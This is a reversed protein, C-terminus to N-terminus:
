ETFLNTSGPDQYRAFRILHNTRPQVLSMAEQSTEKDAPLVGAQKLLNALELAAVFLFVTVLVSVGKM